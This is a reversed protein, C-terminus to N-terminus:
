RIPRNSSGFASVRAVIQVTADVSSLKRSPMMALLSDDLTINLPLDKVQKLLRGAANQSRAASTGYIFVSDDPKV